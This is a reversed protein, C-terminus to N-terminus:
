VVPQQALARLALDAVPAVDQKLFKRGKRLDMASELEGVRFLKGNKWVSAAVNYPGVRRPDTWTHISVLNTTVA